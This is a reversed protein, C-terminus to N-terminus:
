RKGKRPQNPKNGMVNINRVYWASVELMPLEEFIKVGEKQAAKNKEEFSEFIMMEESVGQKEEDGEEGQEEEDVVEGEEEDEEEEQGLWAQNVIEEFITVM